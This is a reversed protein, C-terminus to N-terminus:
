FRYTDEDEIKKLNDNSIVFRGPRGDFEVKVWSIGMTKIIARRGVLDRLAGKILIKEEDIEVVDGIAFPLSMKGGYELIVSEELSDLGKYVKKPTGVIVGHTKV